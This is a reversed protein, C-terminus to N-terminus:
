GFFQNMLRKLQLDGFGYVPYKQNFITFVEEFTEANKQIDIIQSELAGNFRNESAVILEEFNRVIESSTEKSLNNQQFDAWLNSILKREKDNIEKASHFLELLDNEESEAFGKETEKPFIRFIKTKHLNLSSILFWFNLQCFLDDEFWFFVASGEPINQMKQFEKVVLENYNSESDYNEAIFKKRNEFFDDESVPGDILAERWIISEGELNKSFKEALCDGNLIHFINM